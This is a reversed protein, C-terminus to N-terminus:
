SVVRFEGRRKHAEVIRRLVQAFTADGGSLFEIASEQSIGEYTYHRREVFYGQTRGYLELLTAGSDYDGNKNATDATEALRKAFAAKDM